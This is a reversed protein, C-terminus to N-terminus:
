ARARVRPAMAPVLAAIAAMVAARAGLAKWARSLVVFDEEKPRPLAWDV